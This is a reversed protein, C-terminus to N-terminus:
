TVEPARTRRRRELAKRRAQANGAIEAVADTGPRAPHIDLPQDLWSDAWGKRKEPLPATAECFGVIHNRRLHKIAEDRYERARAPHPGTLVEDVTPSPPFLDLLQRRTFTGVHVTAKKDEGVRGVTARSARERWKQQLALGIAQAWAGSPKGAPIAALKRVDGFDALIRRDGRWQEIWPGAVYTIELPPQSDDFALQAPDRRGTIRILADRSTLDIVERTDPDRYKGDRCGIVQMHDFLAMWRWVQRRRLEREVRSRPEWGITRVLEDIEVTVFLRQASIRDLAAGIAVNLLLFAPIGARKLEARLSNVTNPLGLWDLLPSGILKTELPAGKVAHRLATEGDAEVWRRLMPGDALAIGATKV